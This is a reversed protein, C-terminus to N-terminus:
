GFSQDLRHSWDWPVWDGKRSASACVELCAGKYVCVWVGCWVHEWAHVRARARARM